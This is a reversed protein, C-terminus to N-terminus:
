MRFALNVFFTTGYLYSYRPPFRDPQSYDTRLQQFGWMIIDQNNLLNNASITLVITNGKHRWSKGGFFDLTFAPDLQPQTLLMENRIDGEFRVAAETHNDPSPELYINDYYNASVGAWWYRPSNYRLGASLATQPSGGVYYNRLYVTRNTALLESDNDQVITVNPRSTFIHEGHAAVLTASITSSLNADMGFEVGQSVKDVDTMIYNVFSKEDEHYYSRLWIQDKFTSHYFTLRMKVAPSRLVYSLDASHITQNEPNDITFERTRPSIYADRFYPARTLMAGNAVIYNRGDIKYTMGTKFGFNTFAQKESDGLSHDPFRGNQMNGTRWFRTHSVEFGAYMDIHTTQHEAQTWAAYHQANADYDYGIVDGERALRNPNRLDNQLAINDATAEQDSFKDVDLWFDGGLLDVVEKFHRTKSHTVVAGGVMRTAADFQHQININLGYQNKDMRRDEIIYKSRLGQVTNGEIGDVNQVTFLNKSNAFYFNDWQLQRTAPDAWLNLHREYEEMDNRDAWFSPLNRYYDPRPDGTENWDLATSGGPGFWYYATSQVNTKASPTWYHTLQFMPQHYSSIRANRVEGNQYGWNSNYYNTGTLDYAEQVSISARGRQNPAGFAILGLSHRNNFQKEASIFYSWADYFAGEVYGEQAWRRSGSVTLAYGNEMLGTAHMFMIRHNYSRNSVSYSLNTTPRYASARANINTIGGLGGFGWDAASVGSIIESNRTADNLGGWTAWYARGTELDNMPVGNFSITTNESDYGRMRFRMSGFTFGATSVFIDRSAQLLSSIDYGESEGDFDSDSFTITPLQISEIDTTDNQAFLIGVTLFSIFFLYIKRMIITIPLCKSIGPIKAPLILWIVRM